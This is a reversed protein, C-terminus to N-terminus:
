IICFMDFLMFSFLSVAFKTTIKNQISQGFCCNGSANKVTYYKVSRWDILNCLIIWYIKSRQLVGGWRNDYKHLLWWRWQLSQWSCNKWRWIRYGPWVKNQWTPSAAWRCSCRFWTTWWQFPNSLVQSTYPDLWGWTWQQQKWYLIWRNDLNINQFICQILSCILYLSM